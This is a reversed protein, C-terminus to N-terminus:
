WACARAVGLRARDLDELRRGVADLRGRGLMRARRPLHQRVLLLELDLGLLDVVRQPADALEVAELELRDDGRGLLPAVAVLELVREAGALVAREDAAEVLGARPLLDDVDLVVQEGGLRTLSAAGGRRRTPARRLAEVGVVAARLLAEQAVEDDALAAAGAVQLDPEDGAVPRKSSSPKSAAHTPRVAREPRPDVLTPSVVAPPSVSWRAPAGCSRSSSPPRSNRMEGSANKWVFM